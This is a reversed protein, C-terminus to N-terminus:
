KRPCHSSAWGVARFLRSLNLYTAEFSLMVAPRRPFYCASQVSQNM